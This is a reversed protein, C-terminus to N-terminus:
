EENRKLDEGLKIRYRRNKLQKIELVRFMGLADRHWDDTTGRWGHYCFCSGDRNGAFGRQDETIIYRTAGTLLHDERAICYVEGTAIGQGSNIRYSEMEHEGLYIVM